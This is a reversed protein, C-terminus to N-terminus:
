TEGKLTRRVGLGSTKGEPASQESVPTIGQKAREPIGPTQKRIVASVMAERKPQITLKVAYGTDLRRRRQASAQAHAGRKDRWSTPNTSHMALLPNFRGKYLWETVHWRMDLEPDFYVEIFIKRPRSMLDSIM